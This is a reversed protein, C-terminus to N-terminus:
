ASFQALEDMSQAITVNHIRVSGSIGISVTEQKFGDPLPFPTENPVEQTYIAKGKEYLTFQVKKQTRRPIPALNSGNIEVDLFGFSLVHGGVSDAGEALLLANNDVETTPDPPQESYNAHVQAVSFNLPKGLQLVPSIWDTFMPNAQDADWRFIKSGKALYLEGDLENRLLADAWETIRVDSDPETADFSIMRRGDVTQHVAMYKSDHFVGVFSAPNLAKWEDKRYLRATLNRNDGPAALWLGDHSPYLVGGGVNAAGRKSVCPAYTQLVTPSMSEPDTGTFMIPFSETLVIISDGADAAHVGRGSFAYRNSAPWSYPLYPASLCLENDAIGFLCGNPLVGLSKLNAPPPLGGITEMAGGLATGAITDNYTADAAPIEAVFLFTGATGATRYIRKKMGSTNYPAAREWTVSAGVSWPGRVIEVQNSAAIVDVLRHFEVVGDISLKLTQHKAIGFVTNLTLRLRGSSLASVATVTGSNPPAAQLNSLAWTGNANGTVVDSAPSPGSEAGLADVYTYAYARSETPAAGGSVTLGPKQTPLPLGLAFWATPYPLTDIALDFTSMRPEFQDSSWYFRGKEDNALPSLVLDVDESFTLWNDQIGDDTIHRYRFFTSIQRGIDITTELGAIPDLAGSTIKCNVARQAFNPLLLRESLRPVQGRIDKIHIAAM